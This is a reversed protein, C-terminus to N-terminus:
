FNKMDRELFDKAAAVHREQGKTFGAHQQRLGFIEEYQFGFRQPGCPLCMCGRDTLLDVPVSSDPSPCCPVVHCNSSVSVVEIADNDM